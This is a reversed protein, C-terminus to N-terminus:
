AQSLVVGHLRVPPTSTYSWTNKVEISSKLSHDAQRGPQKAGTTLVGPVWQTLPQTPGLTPRSATSLLFRDDNDRDPISVQARFTTGVSQAIGAQIRSTVIELRTRSPRIYSPIDLLKWVPWRSRSSCIICSEAVLHLQIEIKHTLRTLKAAM